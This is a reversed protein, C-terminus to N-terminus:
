LHIQIDAGLRELKGVPDEYARYLSKIDRITSKNTLLSTLVVAMCGRVDESGISVDSSKFSVPGTIEAVHRLDRGKFWCEEDVPCHTSVSYFKDDTMSGLLDLYKFRNEHVTEHIRSKGEIQSLLVALAIQVDTALSPYVDTKINVPRLKDKYYIRVGNDHIDIGAGMENLVFLPTVLHDQRANELFVDGKTILSAVAYTVTEVRDPIVTIESQMCHPGGTIHFARQNDLWIPVGSRQLIKVMEMIEPEIAANRIVSTGKACTATIIFNETAGVSPYPLEIDAAVLEKGKLTLSYYDEFEEINIGFQEFGALHFNIKRDGIKDGALRSINAKGLKSVVPGAFLISTRNGSNKQFRVDSTAFDRVTLDLSHDSNIKYPIGLEDCLNLTILLDGIFPINKIKVECNDGSLAAAIVKTVMNKAGNITVTGYLPGGSAAKIHSSDKIAHYISLSNM